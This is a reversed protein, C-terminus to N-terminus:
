GARRVDARRQQQVWRAPDDDWAHGNDAIAGAAAEVDQWRREQRVAQELASRVFSSRGRPGALDDVEAVLRDDLEIHMRM